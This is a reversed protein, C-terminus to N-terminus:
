GYGGEWSLLAVARLAAPTLEVIGDERPSALDFERLGTIARRATAVEDEDGRDSVIEGVLEDETLHSPNREAAVELMLAEVISRSYKPTEDRAM